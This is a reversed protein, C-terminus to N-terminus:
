SGITVGRAAAQTKVTGVLAVLNNFAVTANVQDNTKVFTRLQSLYPPIQRTYVQVEAIQNRCDANILGQQCSHKWGELGAFVLIIASEMENLRTKTVPNAISATGLQFATEIASITACGALSLSLTLALLIRKM